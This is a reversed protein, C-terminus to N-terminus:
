RGIEICKRAMLVAKEFSSSGNKGSGCHFHIGHINISLENMIYKFKQKADEICTIDDGFKNSFM